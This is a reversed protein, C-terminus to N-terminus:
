APGFRTMRGTPRAKSTATKQIKQLERARAWYAFLMGLSFWLLTQDVGPMYVGNTLGMVLFGALAAGSGAFFARLAPTLSPDDGLRRFAALMRAYFLGLAVLGVLGLDMAMALYLNHPHIPKYLGDRVAISWATSGIGRGLIPSRLVEPALLRWSAIRGATLEDRQSYVLDERREELGTTLRDMVAEPALAAAAAVLLVTVIAVHLQRRYVLLLLVAVAFGLWAGRSFTLVLGSLTLGFVVSWGFRAAGKSAAMLFMLPVCATMLLLGFGNAHMGLRSLFGRRSQLVTLDGGQIAVGFYVVAVPLLSAVAFVLLWREPRKSDRVANALLVAYIVWGLPKLFRIKLFENQTFSAAISTGALNAAGEPIYRWAIVMGLCVPLLYLWVVPRPLLVAPERRIAKSVVLTLLSLLVLYNVINLGPAQPVFHSEIWPLVLTLAVVGVRYDTLVLILPALMAFLVLTPVGGILAALMGLVIGLFAIGLVILGKM